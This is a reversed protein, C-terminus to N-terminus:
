DADLTHAQTQLSLLANRFRESVDAQVSKDGARDPDIDSLDIPAGFVIRSRSPTLLAKFIDDTEPTGSIYAPIVPVQAHIALYATGPQIPGLERGSTAVVRGEPFVPLVRGNKLARLATRIASFDRGDRNVPICGIYECWPRLWPWEYYERAVMFGLVRRCASQLLLHDVGGTHNAILIAPGHPPLPAFGNTNLRHWFGCYSRIVTWFVKLVGHIEPGPRSARISGATPMLIGPLMLVLATLGLSIWANVDLTM